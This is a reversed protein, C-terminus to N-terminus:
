GIKNVENKKVHWVESDYLVSYYESSENIVLLSVPRDVKYFRKVSKKEGFRLLTTQEPVHVLDGKNAPSLM